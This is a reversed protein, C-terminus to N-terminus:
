SVSAWSQKCVLWLSGRLCVLNPYHLYYPIYGVEEELKKVWRKHVEKPSALHGLDACKLSMQLM